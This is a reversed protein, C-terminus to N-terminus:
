DWESVPKGSKCMVLYAEVLQALAEARPIDGFRKLRRRLWLAPTTNNALRDAILGLLKRREAEAVGIEALGEDALPLFELCLDAASRTAPSAEDLTPWLLEAQLGDQASRYFNYEAYRFFGPRM